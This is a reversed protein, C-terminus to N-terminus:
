KTQVARRDCHIFYSDNAFLASTLVANNLLSMLVGHLLSVVSFSVIGVQVGNVLMPGGSDGFCIDQGPIGGMCIM